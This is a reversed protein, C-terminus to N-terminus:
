HVRIGTRSFSSSPPKRTAGRSMDWSNTSLALSIRQAQGSKANESSRTAAKGHYSFTLKGLAMSSKVVYPKMTPMSSLSFYTGFVKKPCNAPPLLVNWRAPPRKLPTLSIPSSRLNSYM